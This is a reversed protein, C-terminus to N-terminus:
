MMILLLVQHTKFPKNNKKDEVGLDNVYIPVSIKSGDDNVSAKTSAPVKVPTSIKTTGKAVDIYIIILNINNCNYIAM